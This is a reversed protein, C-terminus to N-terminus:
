CSQQSFTKTGRPWEKLHFMNYIYSLQKCDVSKITFGCPHDRLFPQDRAEVHGPFATCVDYEYIQKAIALPNKPIPVQLGEFVRTKLPFVHKAPYIFTYRIYYTLSWVYSEDKQYLFIDVFPYESGDYHFKWHLHPKLLLTFGRICALTQKVLEWHQFSVAIDLDDDWPVIGGHRTIGLLSGGVLFHDVNVSRLAESLVKYLFLLDVKQAPNLVPLFKGHRKHLVRLIGTTNAVYPYSVLSSDDISARTVNPPVLEYCVVNNFLGDPIVESSYHIRILNSTPIERWAYELAPSFVINRLPIIYACCVLALFLCLLILAIRMRHAWCRRYMACMVPPVLM